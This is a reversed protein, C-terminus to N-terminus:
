CTLHLAAAVRGEKRLESYIEVARATPAAVLQIGARELVRRTDQTVKMLAQAGTGVVLTDPAAELVADLDDPHLAHGEKRWWGAIVRDPMIILDQTHEQGDVTIRGFRYGEVKPQM